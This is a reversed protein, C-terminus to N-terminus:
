SSTVINPSCGKARMKDLVTFGSNRCMAVLLGTYTVVNPQCRRRLMDDLLSLTDAVRGSDCLVRILPTYTYADPAVPM